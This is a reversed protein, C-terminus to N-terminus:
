LITIAFYSRPCTKISKNLPPGWLRDALRRLGRQRHPCPESSCGQCWRKQTAAGGPPWRPGGQKEWGESYSSHTM